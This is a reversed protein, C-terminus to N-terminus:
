VPSMAFRTALHMAHGHPMMISLWVPFRRDHTRGLRKIIGDCDFKCIVKGRDVASWPGLM